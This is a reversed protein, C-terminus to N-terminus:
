VEVLVVKAKVLFVVCCLLAFFDVSVRNVNGQKM